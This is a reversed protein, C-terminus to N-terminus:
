RSHLVLIYSKNKKYIRMVNQYYTDHDYLNAVFQPDAWLDDLHLLALIAEDVLEELATQSHVYWLSSFLYRPYINGNKDQSTDQTAIYTGESEKKDKKTVQENTHGTEQHKHELNGLAIATEAAVVTTTM